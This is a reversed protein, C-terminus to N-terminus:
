YGCIYCLIEKKLQERLTPLPCRRPWGGTPLHATDSEVVQKDKKAKQIALAYM